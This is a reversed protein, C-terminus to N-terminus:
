DLCGVKRGDDNEIYKIWRATEDADALSAKNLLVLVPKSGGKLTLKRLEPNESSKPIRADRLEIVVDVVAMSEGLLRRTRAM